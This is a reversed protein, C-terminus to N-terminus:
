ATGGSFRLAADGMDCHSLVKDCHSVVKGCRSV